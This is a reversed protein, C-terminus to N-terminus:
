QQPIKAWCTKSTCPAPAPVQNAPQYNHHYKSLCISRQFMTPQRSESAYITLTFAAELVRDQGWTRVWGKSVVDRFCYTNHQPLVGVVVTTSADKSICLRM